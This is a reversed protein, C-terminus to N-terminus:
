PNPHSANYEAIWQPSMTGLDTNNLGRWYALSLLSAISVVGIALLVYMPWGSGYEGAGTAPTSNQVYRRGGPM